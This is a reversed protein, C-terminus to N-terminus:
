LNWWQGDRLKKETQVRCGPNSSMVEQLAIWRTGSDDVGV